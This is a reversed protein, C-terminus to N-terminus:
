LLEEIKQINRIIPAEISFTAWMLYYPHFDMLSNEESYKGWKIGDEHRIRIGDITTSSELTELAVDLFNTVDRWGEQTGRKFTQDPEDNPIYSGDEQRMLEEGPHIGPNWIGFSFLVEVIRMSNERVDEGKQAHIALHPYTANSGVQVYDLFATPKEYELQYERGANDDDPKKFQLKDCIERQAWDKVIQMDNAITM